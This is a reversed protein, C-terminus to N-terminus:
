RLKTRAIIAGDIKRELDIVEQASRKSFDEGLRGIEIEVWAKGRM